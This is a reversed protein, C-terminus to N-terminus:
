VHKSDEMFKKITSSINKNTKNSNYPNDFIVLKKGPATIVAQIKVTYNYGYNSSYLTMTKGCDEPKVDEITMRM